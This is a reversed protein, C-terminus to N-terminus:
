KLVRINISNILCGYDINSGQVFMVYKSISLGGSISCAKENDILKPKYIFRYVRQILSFYTRPIWEM